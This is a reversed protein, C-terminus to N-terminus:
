APHNTEDLERPLSCVLHRAGLLLLATRVAPFIEESSDSSFEETPDHSCLVVPDAGSELSHQAGADPGGLLISPWWPFREALIQYEAHLRGSWSVLLSVDSPRIAGLGGHRLSSIEPCIAPIGWHSLSEQLFTAVARSKGLGYLNVIGGRSSAETILRAAQAFDGSNCCAIITEM